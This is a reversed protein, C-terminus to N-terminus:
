KSFKSYLNKLENSLNNDPIKEILEEITVWNLCLKKLNNEIIEDYKEDKFQLKASIENFRIEELFTSTPNNLYEDYKYAYFRSNM